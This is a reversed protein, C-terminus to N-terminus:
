ATVWEALFRQESGILQELYSEVQRTLRGALPLTVRVDTNVVYRAGGGVASIVHSGHLHVPARGPDISWHGEVGDASPESWSDLQVLRGDGVFRRFPAPVHELPLQRTTQVQVANGSRSVTPEGVGGYRESRARLFAPDLLAAFLEQPGVGYDHGVQV